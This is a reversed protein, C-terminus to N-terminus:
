RSSSATTPRSRARGRQRVRQGSHRGFVSPSLNYFTVTGGPGTPAGRCPSRHERTPARPVRVNRFGVIKRNTRHYTSRRRRPCGSCSISSAPRSRTRIRGTRVTRMPTATRSGPSAPSPRRAREGASHSRRQPRDLGRATASSSRTCASVTSAWRSRTAAAARRSPRGAAHRAPRLGRRDAVRREESIM